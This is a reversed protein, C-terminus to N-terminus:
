HNKLNNNNWNSCEELDTLNRNKKLEKNFKESHENQGLNM